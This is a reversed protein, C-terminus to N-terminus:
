HKPSSEEAPAGARLIEVHTARWEGDDGQEATVRLEAGAVLSERASKKRDRQPFSEGYSVESQALDVRRVQGNRGLLYIWAGKDGDPNQIVTGRFTGPTGASLDACGFLGWFIFGLALLLCRSKM